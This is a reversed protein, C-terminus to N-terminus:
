KTQVKIKEEFVRAIAPALLFLFGRVREWEFFPLKKEHRLLAFSNASSSECTLPYHGM